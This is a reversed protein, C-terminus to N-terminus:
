TTISIVRAYITAIRIKISDNNRPYIINRAIIVTHHPNRYRKHRNVIRILELNNTDSFCPKTYSIINERLLNLMILISCLFKNRLQIIPWSKFYILRQRSLRIIANTSLQIGLCVCTNKNPM